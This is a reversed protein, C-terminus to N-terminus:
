KLTPNNLVLGKGRVKEILDKGTPTKQPLNSFRFLNVIGNKIRDKIQRKYTCEDEGNEQLYKNINEYSCFGNHDPKEYLCEFVWYYITEKSRFEILKNKYYFDGTEADRTILKKSTEDSKTATRNEKKDVKELLYLHIRNAYFRYDKISKEQDIFPVVVRSNDKEIFKLLHYVDFCIRDIDNDSNEPIVEVWEKGDLWFPPVYQLYDWCGWIKKDRLNSIRKESQVRQPISKSFIFNKNDLFLNGTKPNEDIFKKLEKKYGIGYLAKGVDWLFDEIKSSKAGGMGIKGDEFRQLEKLADKLEENAKKEKEAKEVVELLEDKVVVLEQLAKKEYKDREKALMEKEQLESKIIDMLIPANEIYRVYDALGFFFARVEKEEIFSKYREKLNDIVSNM